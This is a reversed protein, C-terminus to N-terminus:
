SPKVYQIKLIYDLCLAPCKEQHHFTNHLYLEHMNLLYHGPSLFPVFEASHGWFVWLLGVHTNVNWWKAFRCCSPKLIWMGFLRSARRFCILLLVFPLSLLFNAALLIHPGCIFKDSLLKVVLVMHPMSAVCAACLWVLHYCRTFRLYADWGFQWLLSLSVVSGANWVHSKRLFTM